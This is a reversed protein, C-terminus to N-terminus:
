QSGTGFQSPKAVNSISALMSTRSAVVNDTASFRMGNALRCLRQHAGAHATPNGIEEDHVVSRVVVESCYQLGGDLKPADLQRM